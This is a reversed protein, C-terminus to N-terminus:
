SSTQANAKKQKIQKVQELLADADKLLADRDSPNSAMDAKQRDLLSLYAMADDFDARRDIAKKMSSIGDEVTASEQEAFKDRLDPPLPQDDRIQKNFHAKNYDARMGNNARFALTWDILGVWYYPDADNPNLAIHRLHYKKSEEFKEPSFPNSGMNYLLSGMNDIATLNNPDRSLIDQYQKIAEEALRQNEASPASPIYQTQYATALYLQAVTLGPDLRIAEQFDEVARDYQGNKYAQVGQALKDRAKLKSCGSLGAIAMLVLALAVFSRQTRKRTELLPANM